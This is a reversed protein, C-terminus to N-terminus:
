LIEHRLTSFIEKATPILVANYLHHYLLSVAIVMVPFYFYLCFSCWLGVGQTFSNSFIQGVCALCCLLSICVYKGNICASKLQWNREQLNAQLRTEWHKNASSHLNKQEPSLHLSPEAGTIDLGTLLKYLWAKKTQRIM